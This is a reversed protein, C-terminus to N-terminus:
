SPHLPAATVTPRMVTAVPRSSIEDSGGVATSSGTAVPFHGSGTVVMTSTLKSFDSVTDIDIGALLMSEVQEEKGKYLKM